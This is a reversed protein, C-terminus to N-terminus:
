GARRSFDRRCREGDGCRTSRDRPAKAAQGVTFKAGAEVFRELAAHDALGFQEASEFINVCLFQTFVRFLQFPDDGFGHTQFGFYNRGVLAFVAQAPHQIQAVGDAVGELSVGSISMEQVALRDGPSHDSRRVNGGGYVPDVAILAERM